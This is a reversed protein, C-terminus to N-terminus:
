VKVRNTYGNVRLWRIVETKLDSESVSIYKPWPCGEDHLLQLIDLNGKKAAHKFNYESWRCGKERFWKMIHLHGGDIAGNYMNGHLEEGREEILWKLIHLQAHKAANLACQWEDLPPFVGKTDGLWKLINLKGNEIAVLELELEGFVGFKLQEDDKIHNLVENLVDIRSESTAHLCITQLLIMDRRQVAWNMVDRRNYFLVGCSMADRAIFSTTADFREQIISLPAYGYVFTEKTMGKTALYIEKCRKNVVGVSKYSKRGVFQVITTLPDDSLSEFTAPLDPRPPSVYSQIIRRRKSRSSKMKITFLVLISCYELHSNSFENYFITIVPAVCL